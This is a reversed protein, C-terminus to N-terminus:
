LSQAETLLTVIQIAGPLNANSISVVIRKYSPTWNNPAPSPITLPTDLNNAAVYSVTVTGTYDAYNAGFNQTWGNFDDADDFTAKNTADEGTDSSFTTSWNGNGGKTTLEDFRRSKVQEMLEQALLVSTPMSHTRASAVTTEAFLQLLPPLSISVVAVALITEILTFGKQNKM